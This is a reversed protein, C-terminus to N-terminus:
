FKCNANQLQGLKQEGYETGHLFKSSYTESASVDWAVPGQGGSLSVAFDPHFLVCASIFM